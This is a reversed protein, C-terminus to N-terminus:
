MPIVQGWPQHAQEPQTKPEMTHAMGYSVDLLQHVPLAIHHSAWTSWISYQRYDKSQLGIHFEFCGLLWSRWWRHSSLHLLQHQAWFWVLLWCQSIRTSVTNRKLVTNNKQFNKMNLNFIKKVKQIIKSAEHILNEKSM